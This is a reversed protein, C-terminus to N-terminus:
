GCAYACAIKAAVRIAAFTALAGTRSGNHLYRSVSWKNIYRLQPYLASTSLLLAVRGFM